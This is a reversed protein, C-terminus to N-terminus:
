DALSGGGYGLIGTNTTTLSAQRGVVALIWSAEIQARRAGRLWLQCEALTLHIKTNVRGQTLRLYCGFPRSHNHFNLM